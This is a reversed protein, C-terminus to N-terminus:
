GCHAASEVGSCFTKLLWKFQESSIDTQRLHAPLNNWLRHGAAAFSRDGYSRLDMQRRMDKLQCSVASSSRRRLGALRDASHFSYGHWVTVLLGPRGNQFGGSASGSALATGKAGANHLRLTSRGVGSCVAAPPENTFQVSIVLSLDPCSAFSVNLM